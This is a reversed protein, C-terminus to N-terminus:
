RTAEARAAAPPAAVALRVAPDGLVAYNRADNRSTWLQALREDHGAGPRQIEDDLDSALEAYCDNFFEMAYGVPHGKALRKLTNEFVPRLTPREGTLGTFSWSWARDIHGVVAQAGGAPHSLLRRSLRSLFARPASERQGNLPQSFGDDRPTGAGGASMGPM